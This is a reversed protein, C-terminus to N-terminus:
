ALAGYLWAIWLGFALFPGFPVATTRHIPESAALKVLLFGIAAVCAVLLAAPLAAMEIWAGGAAFLKVDGLGLGDRGRWWRYIRGVSYLGLGAALASLAHAALVEPGNLGALVLGAALLPLTLFDPLRFCSADIVSLALLTAAFVISAAPDPLAGSQVAPVAAAAYILTLMVARRLSQASEGDLTTTTELEMRPVM